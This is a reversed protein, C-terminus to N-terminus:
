AGPMSEESFAGIVLRDFESGAEDIGPEQADIEPPRGSSGFKSM